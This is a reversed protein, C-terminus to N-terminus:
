GTAGSACVTGDCRVRRVCMGRVYGAGVWLGGAGNDCGSMTTVRVYVTSVVSAVTSMGMVACAYGARLRCGCRVDQCMCLEDRVVCVCLSAYARMFIRAYASIGSQSVYGAYVYCLGVGDNVCLMYLQRGYMREGRMDHMQGAHVRAATCASGSVRM